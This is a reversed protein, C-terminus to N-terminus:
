WARTDRRGSDCSQSCGANRPWGSTFLHSIGRGPVPRGRPRDGRRNDGPSSATVPEHCGGGKGENCLGQRGETGRLMAAFSSLLILPLNSTALGGGGMGGGELPLTLTPPM